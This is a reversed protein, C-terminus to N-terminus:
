DDEECTISGYDGDPEPLVRGPDPLVWLSVPRIRLNRVAALAIQETTPTIAYIASGGYFKTFEQQGNVAPVDVRIFAAGGITQETVYGAIQSHGFLEVIAWSELKESM